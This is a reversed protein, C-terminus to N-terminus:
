WGPPVVWATPYLIVLEEHGKSRKSCALRISRRNEQIVWGALAMRGCFPRYSWPIAGSFLLVTVSFFIGSISFGSRLLNNKLRIGGPAPTQRLNRTHKSKERASLM